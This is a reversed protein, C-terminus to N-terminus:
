GLFEKLYELEHANVFNIFLACFQKLPIGTLVINTQHNMLDLSFDNEPARLMEELREMFFRQFEENIM